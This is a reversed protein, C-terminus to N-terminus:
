TVKGVTNEPSMARDISERRKYVRVIVTLGVHIYLYMYICAAANYRDQVHPSTSLKLPPMSPLTSPSVTFHSPPLLWTNDFHSGQPLHASDPPHATLKHIDYSTVPSTLFQTIAGESLLSTM